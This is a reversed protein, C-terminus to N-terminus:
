VIGIMGRYSKPVILFRSFTAKSDHEYAWNLKERM